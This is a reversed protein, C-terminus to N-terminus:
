VHCVPVAPALPQTGNLTFVQWRAGDAEWYLPANWGQATKVDWGESLWLEPRQYGGAAIFEAYEGNTVPRSAIEFADIFVRHRPQENDFCLRRWRPRDPPHRRARQDM